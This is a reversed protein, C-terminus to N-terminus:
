GMRSTLFQMFMELNRTANKDHEDIRRVCRSINEAFSEGISKIKDMRTDSLNDFIRALFVFKEKTKLQNMAIWLSYIDIKNIDNTVYKDLMSYHQERDETKNFIQLLMQRKPSNAFILSEPDNLGDITLLVDRLLLVVERYLPEQIIKDVFVRQSAFLKEELVDGLFLPTALKKSIMNPMLYIRIAMACVFMHVADKEMFLTGSTQTETTTNEYDDDSHKTDVLTTAHENYNIM